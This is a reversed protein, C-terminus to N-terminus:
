QRMRSFVLITILLPDVLEKQYLRHSSLPEGLLRNSARDGGGFGFESHFITPVDSRIETGDEKTKWLVNDSGGIRSDARARSPVGRITTPQPQASSIRFFCPWTRCM